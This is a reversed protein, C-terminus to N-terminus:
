VIHSLTQLDPITNYVGTWLARPGGRQVRACFFNVHASTADSNGNGHVGHGLVQRGKVRRVVRAAIDNSESRHPTNTDHTWQPEQFAKIFEKSSDTYVYVGTRKPHFCSGRCVHQQKQRADQNQRLVVKYGIRIGM